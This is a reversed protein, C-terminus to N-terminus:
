LVIRDLRGGLRSLLENTITGCQTALSDATNELKGSKGIIVATDGQQIRPIRSVDVITQDMCIRGLIPARYGNILVSGKGYSLERPLGDAYGISVTAIRMDRKATFAAGYGTAEGEYLPRVSAVRAKLSLVPQLCSRWANSDAKNSLIGYLAIGPRVFDGALEAASPFTRPVPIERYESESGSVAMTNEHGSKAGEADAENPGYEAAHLEATKKGYGEPNAKDSLLNLIGYSALMHLGRCPYGKKRLFRIVQYFAQIQAETFLIDQPLLSDSVALHTFYGDVSLNTMECVSQIEDLNECRIGLRHMGTDIALHVHLPNGFRNMLRAYNYDVVTQTLHYRRLLPFDEPPTYGLILIGGRIGAERLAIGEAICAVCFADLGMNNLLRAIAVAGHGYAEAKVAPMLRCREPVLSRLFAVNQELAASDLEIWARKGAPKRAPPAAKRGQLASLNPKVSANKSQEALVKPKEAEKPATRDACSATNETGCKDIGSDTDTNTNMGSNTGIPLESDANVDVAEIDDDAVTDVVDNVVADVVDVIDSDADIDDGINGGDERYENDAETDSLTQVDMDTIDDLATETEDEEQLTERYAPEEETEATHRSQEERDIRDCIEGIKRERNKRSSPLSHAPFRMRAYAILIGALVSLLTVAAFHVLSNDVLLGTLQLPKALARVVVIFAPHLIYIWAAAVRLSKMSKKNSFLLCRYLFFMTPILIVYMSDHRQYEFHRLLFAEGSMIAFSFILGICDNMFDQRLSHGKEKEAMIGMRAGLILFIPAFFLGNRTYSCAQFIFDYVAELFPVKQILGYYSDGFLGVAYLVASVATMANLSLFRSMLYILLVGIICAPFYWLHYFTGDFLLMRLVTGPTLKQYHEAYIGIPLYLLISFAYLLGMKKLFVKLGSLGSSSAKGSSLSSHDASAGGANKRGSSNLFRTVVFQGTLMLFFPVAIRALVRTLFFDASENISILPSTHITIVLVAAAMRFRDLGGYNKRTHM